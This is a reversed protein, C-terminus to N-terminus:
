GNVGCVRMKKECIGFTYIWILLCMIAMQDPDVSKAGQDSVVKYIFLSCHLDQDSTV